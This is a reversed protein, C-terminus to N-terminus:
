EGIYQQIGMGRQELSGEASDDNLLSSFHEMWRELIGEKDGILNGELDRCYDMRPQYGKKFNKVRYLLLM